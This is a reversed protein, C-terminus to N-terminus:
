WSSCGLVMERMMCGVATHRIEVYINKGVMRREVAIVKKAKACM